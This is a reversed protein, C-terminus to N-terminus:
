KKPGIFRLLYKIPAMAKAVGTWVTGFVARVTETNSMLRTGMASWVSALLARVPGLYTSATKCSTPLAECIQNFEKINLDDFAMGVVTRVGYIMFVGMFICYIKFVPSTIMKVGTFAPIIFANKVILYPITIPSTATKVIATKWGIAMKHKLWSPLDKWAINSFGKNYENKKVMNLTEKADKGQLKIHKAIELVATKLNAVNGRINATSEQLGLAVQSATATALRDYNTVQAESTLVPASALLRRATPGANRLNPRNNGLLSSRNRQRQTITRRTPRARAWEALRPPGTATPRAFLAQRMRNENTQRQTSNNLTEKANYFVNNNNNRKASM